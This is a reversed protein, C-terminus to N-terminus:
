NIYANNKKFHVKNEAAFHAKDAPLDEISFIAGQPCIFLCMGCDICEHPNIFLQSAAVAAQEDAEVPAIAASACEAACVFDKRCADTIVYPM